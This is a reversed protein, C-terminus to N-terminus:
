INHNGDGNGPTVHQLSGPLCCALLYKFIGREGFTEQGKHLAPHSLLVNYPGVVSESDWPFTLRRRRICDCGFDVLMSFALATGSCEVFASPPLPPLSRNM